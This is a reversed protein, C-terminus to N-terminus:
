NFKIKSLHKNQMRESQFELKKLSRQKAPTEFNKMSDNCFTNLIFSYKTFQKRSVMVEYEILNLFTKELRSIERLPIDKYVQAFHENEFSDDDWIKSAVCLTILVIRKWNNENILIGTKKMLKEMYVLAMIPIESEMKALNTLQKITNFIQEFSSPTTDLSEKKFEDTNIDYNRDFRRMEEETYKKLSGCAPNIKYASEYRSFARIPEPSPENPDYDSESQRNFCLNMKLCGDPSSESEDSQSAPTDASKMLMNPNNAIDKEKQQRRRKMGIDPSCPALPLDKEESEHNMRPNMQPTSEESRQESQLRARKPRFVSSQEKEANSQGCISRLNFVNGGTRQSSVISPSSHSARLFNIQKLPSNEREEEDDISMQKSDTLEEVIIGKITNRPEKDESNFTFTNKINDNRRPSSSESLNLKIVENNKSSDEKCEFTLEKRLGELSEMKDDLYDPKVLSGDFKLNSNFCYNFKLINQSPTLEIKNQINNMNKKASEIVERDRVVKALDELFLMGRSFKVHRLVVQALAFCAKHMDSYIPILTNSKLEMKSDTNQFDNRIPIEKIPTRQSSPTTIETKQIKESVESKEASDAKEVVETDFVEYSNQPAMKFSARPPELFAQCHSKPSHNSNLYKSTDSSVKQASINSRNLNHCTNQTIHSISYKKLRPDIQTQKTFLSLVTKNRVRDDEIKRSDTYDFPRQLNKSFNNHQINKPPEARSNSHSSSRLPKFKRNRANSKTNINKIFRNRQKQFGGELLKGLKSISLGASSKRIGVRGDIIKDKEIKAFLDNKPQSVEPAVRRRQNNNTVIPWANAHNFNEKNESTFKSYFEDRPLMKQLKSFMRMFRSNHGPLPNLTNIFKRRNQIRLLHIQPDSDSFGLSLFKNYYQELNFHKLLSFLGSSPIQQTIKTSIPTVLKTQPLGISENKSQNYIKPAHSGRSIATLLKPGRNACRKSFNNKTENGRMAQFILTRRACSNNTKRQSPHLSVIKLDKGKRPLSRVKRKKTRYKIGCTLRSFDM